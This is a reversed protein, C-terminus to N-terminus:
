CSANARWVPYPTHEGQLRSAWYIPCGAYQICYGSRSRATDPDESESPDWAGCFDADVHMDFGSTRNPKLILGEERTGSLYRGLYHVADGHEKKPNAGFRACQNIAFACDLKTTSLYMLKGCVSRYDFSQDFAGSDSHRKLLKNPAAPTDKATINGGDLPLDKRISDILHPQSL